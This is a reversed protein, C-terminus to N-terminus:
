RGSRNNKLVNMVDAEKGTFPGPSAIKLSAMAAAFEGAEQISAEKIRKYLYGAMYTDGCGTADLEAFPIYAPINYFINDGFILSGMSGLTIVVERVGWEHLLMAAKKLDREGTLVEAEYENAKLIDIFPLVEKKEEWDVACVNNNEVKRLYGQVDLSLRGKEALAKILQLPIDNSLLPGLHFLSANVDALQSVTFPDATQLVRQTRHDLNSSYINEFHVTHASPFAIVPIGNDRMKEVFYMEREALSTVLHYSVQMNRIAHSFYFSTGGAMLIASGPTVVKDLTIHGICCIDYMYVKNLCIFIVLGRSNATSFIQLWTTLLLLAAAPFGHFFQVWQKSNIWLQKLM